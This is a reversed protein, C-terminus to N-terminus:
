DAYKSLTEILEKGKPSPKVSRKMLISESGSGAGYYSTNADKDENIVMGDLAVGAFLGRSRSYSYVSSKMQWDTKGEADRGVPGASVSADAGLTFKNELFGHVGRENTIVLVADSAQGGLQFGVSGGSMRYFAPASWEGTAEDKVLVVGNGYQAAVVFGAKLMSPFIAIAKASKLLSAPIRDQEPMQMYENLIQKSEWLRNDLDAAHASVSLFLVSLAIGLIRKM